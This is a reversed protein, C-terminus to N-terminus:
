KRYPQEGGEKREEIIEKRKEKGREVERRGEREERSGKLRREIEVV